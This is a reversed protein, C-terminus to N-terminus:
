PLRYVLIKRALKVPPLHPFRERPIRAHYAVLRTYAQDLATTVLTELDYVVLYGVGFRQRYFEAFDRQRDARVLVHLLGGFVLTGFRPFLQPDTLKEPPDEIRGVLLQAQPSRQRAKAIAATSGDLGVYPVAVLDALLAEGCGVDLCPLGLNDIEGALVKLFTEVFEPARLYDYYDMVGHVEDLRAPSQDLHLMDAATPRALSTM